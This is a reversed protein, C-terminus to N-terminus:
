IAGCRKNEDLLLIPIVLLTELGGLVLFNMLLYFEVCQPFISPTQTM